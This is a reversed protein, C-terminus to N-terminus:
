EKKKRKDMEKGKIRRRNRREFTEQPM